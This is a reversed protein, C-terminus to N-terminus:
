SVSVRNDHESVDATEKDDVHSPHHKVGHTKYDWVMKSLEDQPFSLGQRKVSKHLECFFRPDQLRIYEHLVQEHYPVWNRPFPTYDCSPILSMRSFQVGEIADVLGMRLLDSYEPAANNRSERLPRSLNRTAIKYVKARSKLRYRAAYLKALSSRIVYACFGVVKKRNDAYRFWDAMTELFKNMQSNTHAQSAYLMPTCPLPEPDRDGKVFELRRFQRICNQLSATVSLLTGVGKESVIRGGTATYRLTPHIVRRCIIHDLFQIGRSIHEIEVKSNDLRLGYKRECFEILNKRIEIADERPGRIGILFFAGYRIYDMKRTKERGSSPVFEPWSPNHNGDNDADNWISDLKSPLFFEVIKEEMLSDLENLCVNALLPSLIGCHGYSPVKAAEKPAFNFFTRLWYPDPKPENENLIKKKTGKKKKKKKKNTLLDDRSQVRVPTRLASKILGLIKKDKVANELSGMLVNVDVNEFIGSLDGRLFWLYGAFNSRITRIVTHANRGPRFAHSKSSFRSEFVPELIMLLVEQVIRDQFCPKDSELIAQLKRRSILKTLPKDNPSRIFLHTKMGWVFEDKLVANRLSLLNHLVVSHIANRPPFSGTEEACSRQYALAWLDFKKLFGTLNSFPKKTPDSFARVWIDSCVQIPDEKMLAYSDQEQLRKQQQLQFQNPQNQQQLQDSLPSLSSISTIARRLFHSPLHKIATRLSM